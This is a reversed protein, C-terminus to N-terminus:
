PSCEIQIAGSRVLRLLPVCPESGKRGPVEGEQIGGLKRFLEPGCGKRILAHLQGDALALFGSEEPGGWGMKFSRDKESRVEVLDSLKAILHLEHVRRPFRKVLTPLIYLTRTQGWSNGSTPSYTAPKPIGSRCGQM